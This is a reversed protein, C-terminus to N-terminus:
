PDIIGLLILEGVVELPTPEAFLFGVMMGGAIGDETWRVTARLPSDFGIQPLQLRVDVQDGSELPESSWIKCGNRSLDVLSCKVSGESGSDSYRSVAVHFRADDAIEHRPVRASFALSNDQM